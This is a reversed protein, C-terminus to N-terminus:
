LYCKIFHAALTPDKILGGDVVLRGHEFRYYRELEIVLSDITDGPASNEHVSWTAALPPAIECRVLGDARLKERMWEPLQVDQLQQLDGSKSRTFITVPLIMSNREIHSMAVKDRDFSGDDALM